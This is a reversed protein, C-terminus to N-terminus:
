RSTCILLITITVMFCICIIVTIMNIFEEEIDVNAAELNSGFVDGRGGDGAVGFAPEGPIRQARFLGSSYEGRYLELHEAGDRVCHTAKTDSKIGSNTLPSTM